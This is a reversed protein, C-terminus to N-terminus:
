GDSAVAIVWALVIISGDVIRHHPRSMALAAQEMYQRRLVGNLLLPGIRQRLRLQVAKQELKHDWTWIAFQQRANHSMCGTRIPRYRLLGVTNIPQAKRVNLLHM